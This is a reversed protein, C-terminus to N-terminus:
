RTYVRSGRLMDRIDDDDSDDSFDRCAIKRTSTCCTKPPPNQEYQRRKREQYLRKKAYSKPFHEKVFLRMEEQDEESWNDHTEEHHKGVVIEPCIELSKLHAFLERCQQHRVFSYTCVRKVPLHELLPPRDREAAFSDLRSPLGVGCKVPLHEIIAVM